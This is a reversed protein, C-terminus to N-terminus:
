FTLVFKDCGVEIAKACVPCIAGSAAPMVDAATTASSSTLYKRSEVLIEEQKACTQCICCHRCPFLVCNAATSVHLSCKHGAGIERYPTTARSCLLCLVCM